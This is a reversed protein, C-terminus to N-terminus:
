IELKLETIWDCLRGESEEECTIVENTSGNCLHCANVKRVNSLATWAELEKGPWGSKNLNDDKGATNFNDHKNYRQM